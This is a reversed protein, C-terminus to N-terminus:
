GAISDPEAKAPEALDLLAPVIGSAHAAEWEENVRTFADEDLIDGAFAAPEVGLDDTTLDRGQWGCGCAMVIREAHADLWCDVEMWEGKPSRRLPLFELSHIHTTM